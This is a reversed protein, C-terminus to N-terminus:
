HHQLSDAGTAQSMLERMGELKSSREIEARDSLITRVERPNKIRKIDIEPSSQDSTCLHITGLGFLRERFSQRLTVDMVRYLRIEEERVTLLGSRIFLCNDTLTYTTFSWPLGFLTRKKGTWLPSEPM